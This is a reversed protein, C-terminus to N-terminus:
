DESKDEGKGDKYNVEWKLKGNESYYKWLGDREGDKYNEEYKLQGNKHYTKTINDQNDNKNKSGRTFSDFIKMITIHIIFICIEFM